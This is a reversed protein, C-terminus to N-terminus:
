RKCCFSAFVKGGQDINLSSNLQHTAPRLTAPFQLIFQHYSSRWPNIFLSHCTSKGDAEAILWDNDTQATVPTTEAIISLTIQKRTSMAGFCARVRRCTSHHGANACETRRVWIHLVSISLKPGSILRFEMLLFWMINYHGGDILLNAQLALVGNSGNITSKNTYLLDFYDVTWWKYAEQCM